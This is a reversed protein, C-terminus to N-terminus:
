RRTPPGELRTTASKCQDRHQCLAVRGRDPTRLESVGLAIQSEVKRADTPNVETGKRTFDAEANRVEARLPM